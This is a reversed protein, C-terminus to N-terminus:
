WSLSLTQFPVDAAADLIVTTALSEGGGRAGPLMALEIVFIRSERVALLDAYNQLANQVQPQKWVKRAKATAFIAVDSPLLKPIAQLVEQPAAFPNIKGDATYLTAFAFLNAVSEPTAGPISRLEGPSTFIASETKSKDERPKSSMVASSRRRIAEMILPSVGTRVADPQSAIAELLPIPARNLDLLGSTDRISAEVTVGDGLDFRQISGDFFVRNEPATALISAKAAELGAVLQMENRLRATEVSALSINSQAFLSLAVIIATLAAVIWLVIVLILGRESNRARTM